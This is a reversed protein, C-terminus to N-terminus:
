LPIAHNTDTGKTFKFLSLIVITANHHLIKTAANLRGKRSDLSLVVTSMYIKIPFTRSCQSTAAARMLWLMILFEVHAYISRQEFIFTGRGQEPICPTGDYLPLYIGTKKIRM